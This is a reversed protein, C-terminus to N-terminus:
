SASEAPQAHAHRQLWSVFEEISFVALLREDVQLKLWERARVTAGGGAAIVIVPLGYGGARINAVVFPFKQDASGTSDQWKSEIALGLPFEAINEVVFDARIVTGYISMGLKAQRKFRYRQRTLLDNIIDEATRGSDNARM